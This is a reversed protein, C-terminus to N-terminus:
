EQIITHLDRWVRREEHALERLWARTTHPDMRAAVARDASIEDLEHVLLRIRTVQGADPTLLSLLFAQTSAVRGAHGALLEPEGM